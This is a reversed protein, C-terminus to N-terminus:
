VTVSTTVLQSDLVTVKACISSTTKKYAKIIYFIVRTVRSVAGRGSAIDRMIINQFGM